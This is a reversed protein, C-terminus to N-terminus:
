SHQDLFNDIVLFPDIDILLDLSNDKDVDIMDGSGIEICLDLLSSDIDDVEAQLDPDNEVDYDPHIAPGRDDAHNDNVNELCEDHDLPKPDANAVPDLTPHSVNAKYSAGDSDRVGV